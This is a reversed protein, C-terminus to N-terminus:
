LAAAQRAAKALGLAPSMHLYVGLHDLLKPVKISRIIDFEILCDPLVEPPLSRRPASSSLAATVHLQLARPPPGLPSSGPGGEAWGAWFQSWLCALAKRDRLLRCHEPTFQPLSQTRSCSGFWPILAWCCQRDQHTLLSTAEETPSKKSKAGCPGLPGMRCGTNLSSWLVDRQTGSCIPAGPRPLPVTGALGRGPCASSCGSWKAKTVQAGHTGM